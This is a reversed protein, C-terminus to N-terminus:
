DSTYDFGYRFKSGNLTFQIEFSTPESASTENLSFLHAELRQGM